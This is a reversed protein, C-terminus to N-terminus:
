MGDGGAYSHLGVILLNVGVLTFLVVLFGIVAMWASKRGSWGMAIRFHLYITYVAWSIFAWTEKPDWGWYRGWARKAWIMAFILAGLTFVPYGIAVSKYSVEDLLEPDLRSVTGSIVDRLPRRAWARLLWYLVLGGLLAFLLTNWNKGQLFPLSRVLPMPVGLFSGASGPAVEAPGILPPLHYLIQRTVTGATTSEVGQQVTIDFAWEHGTTRFGYALGSFAVLTLTLYLLGEMAREDWISTEGKKRTRFLYMLAAGFAVAFLGEGMAAMSVHIKLWQSQLAPILPKIDKPFVNAYGILVCAVPTVFAGLAPLDYSRGIIQFAVMITFVVFTIFEYMNSTPWVGSGFFRSLIAAAQLGVGLTALQWGRTSANTFRAGEPTLRVGILGTAYALASFLYCAFSAYYLGFSLSVLFDM